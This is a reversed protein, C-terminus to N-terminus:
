RTWRNGLTYVADVIQRATEHVARCLQEEASDIAMARPRRVQTTRTHRTFPRTSLQVGRRDLFGIGAHVSEHTIVSTGLWGKRLHIEGLKPTLHGAQNYEKFTHCCGRTHRGYAGCWPHERHYQRAADRSPFVRVLYFWRTGPRPYVRFIAVHQVLQVRKM